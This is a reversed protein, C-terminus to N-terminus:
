ANEGPEKEVPPSIRTPYGFRDRHDFDLGGVTGRVVGPTLIVAELRARNPDAAPNTVYEKFQPVQPPPTPNEPSKKFIRRVLESM